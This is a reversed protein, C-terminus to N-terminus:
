AERWVQAGILRPRAGSPACRRQVSNESLRAKLMRRKALCSKEPQIAERRYVVGRAGFIEM